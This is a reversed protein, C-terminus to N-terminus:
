EDASETEEEPALDTRRPIRYFAARPNTFDIFEIALAEGAHIGVPGASAGLPGLRATEIWAGRKQKQYLHLPNLFTSRTGGIILKNHHILLPSGFSLSERLDPLEEEAPNVFMQELKWLGRQRNFAYAVGEFWVSRQQDPAAIAANNGSLDLDSGFRGFQDSRIVQRQRWKGGIRDFSRVQNIDTLDPNGSILVTNGELAFRYGFFSQGAIVAENPVIESERIFHNKDNRRFAYVHRHSRPIGEADPEFVQVSILANRGSLQAGYFFFLGQSGDQGPVTLEQHLSWRGQQRRYIDIRVREGEVADDFRRSVFLAWHGDLDILQAFAENGASANPNVLTQVQTWAGASRRYIGLTDVDAPLMVTDRDFAAGPGRCFPDCVEQPLTIVQHPILQPVQATADLALLTSIVVLIRLSLNRFARM